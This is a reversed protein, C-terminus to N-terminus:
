ESYRSMAFLFTQKARSFMNSYSQDTTKNNVEVIIGESSKGYGFDDNWTSAWLVAMGESRDDNDIVGGTNILKDLIVQFNKYKNVMFSVSQKIDSFSAMPKPTNNVMLCTQSNFYQALGAHDVDTSVNFLNNNYSTINGRQDGNEIIAIGYIFKKMNDNIDTYSKLENVVDSKNITEKVQSVFEKNPYGTNDICLDESIPKNGKNDTGDPNLGDNNENQTKKREQSIKEQFSKLLERNVSLVLKDPVDLATRPIRVGEFQTTFDGKGISHSVNTILYPGTFMPVHRLNFYMTPQIMANGMATVNCTYSKSKYFNYLSQSQQAVKQGSAQSGLEALVEFTPAINKFQSMDISMGKFVGQNRIGFDVNFGVCKNSHSYDTKNNQNEILPNASARVLDFADDLFKSNKNEKTDLNESPKGIYISLMRPRSERTDVEMFTGFLDNPIDQPIPQGDVIREDRGYFNTYVPTPMFVFNNDELIHGLLQYVTLGSNRGNLFNRLNEINIIVKDGVQRNARDLFLFDEFITRNKFDQGAVWKDNMTRFTEWLETKGVNGDVKSIISNESTVTASPLKRNLNLFVYDLVDKNFKDLGSLYENYDTYFNNTTYNSQEVKKTVYMKIIKSLMKVNDRNFEIDFDIFFNTILNGSNTYPIDKYEGVSLFLENWADTNQLISDNLTLTGNSSPLTGNIYKGFDIRDVPHKTEDNSFSNFVKRNYETPNGIKLIVDFNLYGYRHRNIFNKIQTKSIKKVNTESSEGLGTKDVILISKIVDYLNLTFTDTNGEYTFIKGQNQYISKARFKEDDSINVFNDGYIEELFEEFTQGNGVLLSPNFNNPKKCFNLFHREFEDLMDKSFMNFMDEITSYEFENESNLNFSQHNKDDNNIYKLYENTNPKKIKSNDYYGYNPSEWLFRTTGNYVASDDIIDKTMVNLENFCEFIPQKFGIKGCSPILLLSKKEYDDFDTNNEIDFYQYWTKIFLQRNPNQPDYGFGKSTNANNTRGIKLNLNNVANSFENETYATFLNKNTFYFYVDNIVKPYMGRDLLITEELENSDGIINFSSKQVYPITIGNNDIINYQKSEDSSIPDYASKHDFDEWIGDLIDISNIKDKKYRHWISGYKLLLFYPLRHLSAFKNLSPTIYGDDITVGTLFSKIKERGTILPLSNLYLYGLGVYPNENENKENEVGKLLANIFYPTNLLTTTQVSTINGDYESGYNVVSETLFTKGLDRNEFFIKANIGSDINEYGYNSISNERNLTWEYNTFPRKVFFDYNDDFSTLTKKSKSVNYINTTDNADKADLVNSGESINNQCWDLNSFPYTNSLNLENSVNSTVYDSLKEIKQSDKNIKIDLGEFYTIDYIGYTKENISKIYPIVYEDREFLTYSGNNSMSKLYGEINDYTFKFEKLKQLLDTSSTISERINEVEIDGITSYIESGYDKNRVYNSFRSLIFIREYVEYFFSVVSKDVYPRQKFPFEISNIPLYPTENLENAQKQNEYETETETSAKLYEEVFEIEPWLDYRFGQTNYIVSNDGPYYNIYETDGNENVKPVIYSPWPYVVATNKLVGGETVTSIADKNEIGFASQSDVITSLRTPNDRKDWAREHVDDMLRFFADSSACIVAMINKITPDFGLGNEESKVKKALAYSLKEEIIKKNAEFEKRLNAIKGLFTNSKSPKGQFNDGFKFFLNDLDESTSPTGLLDQVKETTEFEKKKNETFGSLELENTPATKRQRIFTARFDINDLTTVETKINNIKINVNLNSKIKEGDIVCFGSEGFSTNNNLKENYESIYKKLETLADSKKQKNLEKKFPYLIDGGFVEKEVLVSKTDIYKSFWNNEYLGYLKNRYEDILFSYEQLDTLVSMDEKGYTEMVYNEFNDLKMLLENMTLPSLNEDILGKSKYVDFMERIKDLGKSGKLTTVESTENNGNTEYGIQTINNYMRPLAFLSNVMIDSLIAYTRAIYNTTIKYNGDSADFRANFDKLMLEYRIAKGFYGKITLTFLPYPLQMFASYPSNEGQEFLVRGQVDTMEINVVPVYSTNLKITIRNIGLLQTDEQNIITRNIRRGDGSGVIELKTQNAGMGELSGKGTIQDSWSTDLYEKGKPKLFNIKGEPEGDLAGVRINQVTDDFNSGVALKTRPLVKAELNAYIVLEEHNVLRESVTNDPNVVKNPDVVIINEYDTEVYVKQNNYFKNDAM